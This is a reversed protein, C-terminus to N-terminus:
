QENIIKKSRPYYHMKRFNMNMQLVSMARKFLVSANNCNSIFDAEEQTIKDVLIGYHMAVIDGNFFKGDRFKLVGFSSTINRDAVMGKELDIIRVPVLMHGYTIKLAYDESFDRIASKFIKDAHIQSAFYHMIDRRGVIDSEVNSLLHTYVDMGGECDCGKSDNVGSRLECGTVENGGECLSSLHKRAHEGGNLPTAPCTRMIEFLLKLAEPTVIKKDIM